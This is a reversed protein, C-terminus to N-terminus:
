VKLNPKVQTRLINMLESFSNEAKDICELEESTSVFSSLDWELLDVVDSILIELDKQKM